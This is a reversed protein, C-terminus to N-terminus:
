FPPECGDHAGDDVDAETRAVLLGCCPCKEFGIRAWLRAVAERDLHEGYDAWDAATPEFDALDAALTDRNTM